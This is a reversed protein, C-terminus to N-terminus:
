EDTGDGMITYADGTDNRVISAYGYIPRDAVLLFSVGEDPATSLTGFIDNMLLVDWPQVFINTRRGQENGSKDYWSLTFKAVENNPNAIGLNARNNRIGFLM